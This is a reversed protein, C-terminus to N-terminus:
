HRHHLFPTASEIVEHINAMSAISASLVALSIILVAAMKATRPRPAPQLLAQVRSVVQFSGVGFAARAGGTSHRTTPKAARTLDSRLVAIHALARGAARRDGIHAAADEDAWREIGLRVAAPVQRLLPNAAASIDVIHVFLHHRRQLHSLEHTTLLHTEQGSLEALLRRSLVVCGRIGAVTYADASDDEVIVVPGGGARYDRCVREARVLATLIRATRVFARLLLVLVALGAVAGFWDPIPVHAHVIAASWHQEAAIPALGALMGVAIASLALGGALSLALSATSLALVAQAPRFRTVVTRATRGVSLCALFSLALALLLLAM